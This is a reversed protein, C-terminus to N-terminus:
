ELTQLRAVIDAALKDCGQQNNLYHIYRLPRLDFPVDDHSQTILIVEKGLTHAIGAEYFVNANKGSLDCIVVKSTCILEIIDQMIHAHLWFDDARLCEYDEDEIATKVTSHVLGFSASFPMMLSILKPNVPKESLQFISPKPAQGVQHSLLVQFLDVDKIAWHNTGFEWENMDLESSLAYIDANTLKPLDPDVTYNLDYNRGNRVVRTLWAIRVVENSHGEEMLLTPLGMVADIDLEGSPEFRAAVLDDTYQLVRGALISGRRDHSVSASVILNFM